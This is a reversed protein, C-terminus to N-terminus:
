FMNVKTTSGMPYSFRAEATRSTRRSSDKMNRGSNRFKKLTKTTSHSTSSMLTSITFLAEAPFSIKRGIDRMPWNELSTSYSERAKCRTSGGNAKTCAETKTTFLALVMDCEKCRTARTNVAKSTDSSWTSEKHHNNPHHHLFQPTSSQFKRCKPVSTHFGM